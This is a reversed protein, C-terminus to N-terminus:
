NEMLQDFRNVLAQLHSALVDVGDLVSQTPRADMSQMVTMLYLCKNQFAVLNENEADGVYAGGYVFDQDDPEGQGRLALAM